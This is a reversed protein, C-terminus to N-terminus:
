VWLVVYERLSCLVALMHVICTFPTGTGMPIACLRNRRTTDPSQDADGDAIYAESCDVSQNPPVCLFCCTMNSSTRVNREREEFASVVADGPDRLDEYQATKSELEEELEELTLNEVLSAFAENTEEDAHGLGAQFVRRADQTHEKEVLM